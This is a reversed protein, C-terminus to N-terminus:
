RLSIQFGVGPFFVVDGEPFRYVNLEAMLRSRKGIGVGVVAGPISANSEVTESDFLDINTSTAFFIMKLGAYVNRTGYLVMPYLGLARADEISFYSVGMDLALTPSGANVAYKVDFMVGGLFGIPIGFVKIGADLRDTIGTRGYIDIMGFGSGGSGAIGSVGVGMIARDEGLPTPAQFTSFSVCGALFPLLCALVMLRFMPNM